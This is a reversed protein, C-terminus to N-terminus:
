PHPCRAEKTPVAASPPPQSRALSSSPSTPIAASSPGTQLSTTSPPPTTPRATSPPSISAVDLHRDAPRSQAQAGPSSPSRSRSAAAELRAVDGHGTSDFASAANELLDFAQDVLDVLSGRRDTEYWQLVAARLAAVSTLAALTPQLDGRRGTCAGEACADFTPQVVMSALSRHAVAEILARECAAFSALVRPALDPIRRVIEMRRQWDTGGEAIEGALARMVAHLAELPPEDDPRDLVAQGLSEAQDVDFGIVADEKSRFHNFFTRVSVDAAQAIDEVTVKDLGRRLVLDLACSRLAQHTALRKRDRRGLETSVGRPECM